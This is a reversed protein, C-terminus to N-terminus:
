ITTNVWEGSVEDYTVYTKNTFSSGASNYVQYVNDKGSVALVRLLGVGSPDIIYLYNYSLTTYLHTEEDYTIGKTDVKEYNFVFEEGSKAITKIVIGKVENGEDDYAIANIVLGTEDYNTDLKFWGNNRDSLYKNNNSDTFVNQNNEKNLVGEFFEGDYNIYNKGDSLLCKLTGRTEDIGNLNITKSFTSNKKYVLDSKSTNSSLYIDDNVISVYKYKALSTVGNEEVFYCYYGDLSELRNEEANIKLGYGYHGWVSNTDVYAYDYGNIAEDFLFLSYDSIYTGLVNKYHPTYIEKNFVTTYYQKENYNIIFGDKQLNRTAVVWKDEIYAYGETIETATSDIKQAFLSSPSSKIQTKIGDLYIYYKGGADRIYDGYSNFTNNYIGGSKATKYIGDELYYYTKDIQLINGDVSYNTLAQWENNFYKYNKGDNGNFIDIEEDYTGQILVSDVKIFYASGVSDTIIHKDNEFGTRYYSGSSLYLVEDITLLDDIVEEKNETQLFSTEGNEDAINLAWGNQVYTEENINMKAIVDKSENCALKLKEILKERVKNDSYFKESYVVNKYRTLANTKLNNSNIKTVKSYSTKSWCIGFNDYGAYEDLSHSGYSNSDFMEKELYNYVSSSYANVNGFIQSNGKLELLSGSNFNLKAGALKRGKFINRSGTFDGIKERDYYEDLVVIENGQEGYNEDNIIVKCGNNVNVEAGPLLKLKVNINVTGKNFNFIQNETVPFLVCTTHVTIGSVKLSMENININGYFDFYDTDKRKQGKDTKVSEQTYTKVIYSNDDMLQMLSDETNSILNVKTSHHNDSAYLVCNAILNGGYRVTTKAQLYPTKFLCFPTENVGYRKYTITGGAFDEVCFNTSLSSDKGIIVQGKQEESSDIIYGSCEVRGGNRIILRYGNLDLTTYDGTIYGQNGQGTQNVVAGIHMEGEVILDSQLKLTMVNTTHKEIFDDSLSDGYNDDMHVFDGLWRNSDNYERAQEPNFPLGNYNDFYKARSLLITKGKPISTLNRDEILSSNELNFFPNVVKENELAESISSYSNDTRNGFYSMTITGQPLSDFPFTAYNNTIISEFRINHISTNEFSSDEFEIAGDYIYLENIKSNKFAGTEILELEKPLVLTTNKINLDSFANASIEKISNSFSIGVTDIGLEKLSSSIDNIRYVDKLNFENAFTLDNYAEKVENIENTINFTANFHLKVDESTFDDLISSKLNVLYADKNSNYTYYFKSDYNYVNNLSDLVGDNDFLSYAENEVNNYLIYGAEFISTADFNLGSSISEVIFTGDDKSFTNSDFDYSGINKYDNISNFVYYEQTESDKYFGKLEGSTSVLKKYGLIAEKKVPNIEPLVPDDSPSDGGGPEDSCNGGTMNCTCSTLAVLIGLLSLVFLNRKKM